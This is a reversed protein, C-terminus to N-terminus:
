FINMCIFNSQSHLPPFALAFYTWVAGSAYIERMYRRAKFSSAFLLQLLGPSCCSSSNGALKGAKNARRRSEIMWLRGKLKRNLKVVEKQPIAFGHQARKTTIPWGDFPPKSNKNFTWNNLYSYLGPCITNYLSCFSIIKLIIHIIVPKRYFYDKKCKIWCHFTNRICMAFMICRDFGAPPPSAPCPTPIQCKQLRRLMATKDIRACSRGLQEWGLRRATERGGGAKM